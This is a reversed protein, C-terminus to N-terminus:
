PRSVLLTRKWVDAVLHAYERADLGRSTVLEFYEPANMTWVLDAVQDDTLDGRLEGTARLDRAFLRMNSARRERLEAWTAACEPDEAAAELLARALPVTHPLVRALAQAYTDIKAVATTAARIDRVYEREEAPLPEDSEGLRM